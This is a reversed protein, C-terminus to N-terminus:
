VNWRTLCVCCVYKTNYGHRDRYFVAEKNKDSKLTDCSKNPCIYDHTRPLIPNQIINLVEDDEGTKNKTDFSINFLITGPQIVYSTNCNSCLFIFQAVNKQQKVLTKFKNYLNIEDEKKLGNDIIYDKLTGENFNIMYQYGEEIRLKSLEEPNTITKINGDERKTNRTIDLSDNCNKCYEM